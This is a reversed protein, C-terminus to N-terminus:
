NFLEFEATKIRVPRWGRPKGILCRLSYDFKSGRVETAIAVFAPKGDFYQVVVTRNGIYGGFGNKSNVVGLAQYVSYLYGTTSNRM